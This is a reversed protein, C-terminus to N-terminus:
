LQSRLLLSASCGGDRCYISKSGYIEKLHRERCNVTLVVKSELEHFEGVYKREHISCLPQMNGTIIWDIDLTEFM